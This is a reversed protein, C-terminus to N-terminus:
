SGVTPDEGGREATATAGAADHLAARLGEVSLLEPLMRPEAPRDPRYVLYLPVGARGFRALEARIAEDRRTWDARFVAFDLDRLATQIEEDAIVAKENVKCTICWDATYLVFAPRGAALEERLAAPDYPAWGDAAESAADAPAPELRVLLPAAVAFVLLGAALGRAWGMRQARQLQGLAWIGFAVAVLFGLMLIVGDAGLSRGAIWLLWVASALLAFGLGSRLVLM